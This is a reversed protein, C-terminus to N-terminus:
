DSRSIEYKGEKIRAIIRKTIIKAAGYLWASLMVVVVAIWYPDSVPSDLWNFIHTM